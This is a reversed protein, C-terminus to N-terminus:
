MERTDDQNRGIAGHEGAKGTEAAVAVPENVTEIGGPRGRMRWEPRLPLEWRNEDLEGYEVFAVNDVTEEVGNRPNFIGRFFKGDLHQVVGGVPCRVIDPRM